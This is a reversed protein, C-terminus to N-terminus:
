SESSAVLAKMGAWAATLMAGMRRGRQGYYPKSLEDGVITGLAASSKMLALYDANMATQHRIGLTILFSQMIANTEYNIKQLRSRKKTSQQLYFADVTDKAVITADKVSVQEHNPSQIAVYAKAIAEPKKRAAALLFSGLNRMMRPSREITRGWDYVVVDGSGDPAAKINGAHMDGHILGKKWLTGAMRALNKLHGPHAPADEIRTGPVLEMVIRGEDSLEQFTAPVHVGPLDATAQHARSQMRRERDFDLEGYVDRRIVELLFPLITQMRALEGALASDGAHATLYEKVIDSAVTYARVNDTLSQEINSRKVKSAFVAGQADHVQLVHAISASSIVSDFALEPPLTAAIEAQQDEQPLAIGEQLSRGIQMVFPARPGPSKKAIGTLSQGMKVFIPGMTFLREAIEDTSIDSDGKLSFEVAKAVSGYLRQMLLTDAQMEALREVTAPGDYIDVETLRKAIYPKLIDLTVCAVVAVNDSPEVATMDIIETITALLEETSGKAPYSLALDATQGIITTSLENSKRAVLDKDLVGLVSACGIIRDRTGDIAQRAAEQRDGLPADQNLLAYGLADVPAADVPLTIDASYAQLNERFVATYGTEPALPDDLTEIVSTRLYERTNM